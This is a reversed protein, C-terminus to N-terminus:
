KNLKIGLCITVMSNNDKHDHVFIGDKTIDTLGLQGRIGASYRGMLHQYGVVLGHNLNEFGMVYGKTDHSQEPYSEYSSFETTTITNTGSILYDMSYGLMIQNKDMFNRKVGILFGGYQLQNTQITQATTSFGQGYSTNETVVPNSMGNVVYYHAGATLSWGHHFQYNLGSELFYGAPLTAGKARGYDAWVNLGLNVYWSTRNERNFPISTNRSLQTEAIDFKADRYKIEGSFIFADQDTNEVVTASNENGTRRGESLVPASTEVNKEEMPLVQTSHIGDTENKQFSTLEWNKPDVGSSTEGIEGPAKKSHNPSFGKSVAGSSAMDRQVFARENEVPRHDPAGAGSSVLAGQDEAMSSKENKIERPVDLTHQGTNHDQTAQSSHNDLVHIDMGNEGSNADKSENKILFPATFFWIFCAAAVATGMFISIKKWRLLTKEKQYMGIAKEFYEEKFELGEPIFNGDSINDRKNM